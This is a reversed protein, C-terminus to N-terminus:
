SDAAPYGICLTIEPPLQELPDCYLALLKEPAISTLTGLLLTSDGIGHQQRFLERQEDCANGSPPQVGDYVIRIKRDPICADLLQRRVYDSVAIYIAASRYKRRSLAGIPFAVRRAVVLRSLPPAASQRAGALW